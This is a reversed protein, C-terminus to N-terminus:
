KLLLMERTFTAGPTTLRYIYCGSALNSANFLIQHDGAAYEGALKFVQDGLLNYVVLQVTATYPLHFPITTLPNFPNPYNQALIFRGPSKETQVSSTPIVTLRFSVTDTLEGIGYDQVVFYIQSQGHYNSQPKVYIISGSTNGMIRFTVGTTDAYARLQHVDTPDPDTYFVKLKLQVGQNTSTDPFISTIVPASNPPAQGAARKVIRLDDIYIRGVVAGNVGKKLQLSEIKYSTGDLIENGLWSGVSNPDNLNWSLLKWGVWNIETWQSVELAYGAGGTESLSFRFLNNSNDGYVFCQLTWTTDFSIETPASPQIHERLLHNDATLDWQYQIYGSKKEAATFASAPLYIVTSYGFGSGAQVIGTTSGSTWPQWWDGTGGFNDIMTKQAYHFNATQFPLSVPAALPNSATDTIGTALTLLNDVGSVMQSYSRLSLLSQGNYTSLMPEITLQRNNNILNVYDPIITAPDVLEDFLVTIVEDIAIADTTADPYSLAIEPGATDADRTTFHLVFPDNEIGDANGDIPRGNIDTAATSITLTYSTGFALSHDFQVTLRKHDSSWLWTMGVVAPSLNFAADVSATNMTKSFTIVISTNVPVLDGEAPTIHSVIPPFSPIPDSISAASPLSENWYRDFQTAAYHYSGNYDQLGDFQDTVSMVSNGFRLAVIEDQAPDIQADVSRYVAFWNNESSSSPTVQITYHLSDMQNLIITPQGPPINDILGTARIKTKRAFFSQAAPEWYQYGRWSGYSFFQFGDVWSVTRCANVVEPHRHWVNNEAFIYSGPGVSYLRGANIGPQIFPGWAQSAGTLMAVFESGTTWHYHMPTLQDIYGENFWLAADQYVSGYGQWGSWNYKGLAASSLRVWSKAAQISDHLTRVFTTVSGRWWAEWSDYGTPVGASYPHDIDYLYRGSKNNNLDDIQAQSIVGDLLRNPDQARAIDQSLKSNSYENWRVYDLHIGDIDYNRVIEMIVNITYARVAELGPSLAISSTMPIGDMDRCIWEPHNGAPTGPATSSAQFVNFWAHLEMGRQHAAEIAVALPDYGPHSGGAYYGWPEYSSAYYATGSQRAQWLVANFHGAQHNDMITQVRALNEAVSSSASIHEWTIVWTARFEENNTQAWGLITLGAAISLWVSLKKM